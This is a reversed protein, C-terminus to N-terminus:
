RMPRSVGSLGGELNQKPHQQLTNTPLLGLVGCRAEEFNSKSEVVVVVVATTTTLSM